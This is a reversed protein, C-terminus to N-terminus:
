FTSKLRKGGILYIYFFSKEKIYEGILFLGWQFHYVSNLKRIQVVVLFLISYTEMRSGRVSQRFGVIWQGLLNEFSIL